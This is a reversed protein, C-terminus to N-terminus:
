FGGIVSDLDAIAQEYADKAQKLKALVDLSIKAKETNSLYAMDDEAKYIFYHNELTKTLDIQDIYSTVLSATLSIDKEERPLLVPRQSAEDYAWITDTDFNRIFTNTEFFRASLEDPWYIRTGADVTTDTPTLNDSIHSYDEQFFYVDEATYSSTNSDFSGIFNNFYTPQTMQKVKLDGILRKVHLKGGEKLHGAVVGVEKKANEITLAIYADEMETTARNRGILGIAAGESTVSGEAWIGKLSYVGERNGAEIGGTMLGAYKPANISADKIILNKITVPGRRMRGAVVGFYGGGGTTSAEQDVKCSHFTVNEMDAGDYINGALVGVDELGSIYANDFTINQITGKFTNFLGVKSVPLNIRLNKIAYGQGDILGTFTLSSNEKWEYDSMDIDHILRFHSSATDIDRGMQYVDEPTSLNIVTSISLSSVTASNGNTNTTLAYVDYEKTIDLLSTEFSFIPNDVLSLSGKTVASTFSDSALQDASPARSGKSLVAYHLTADSRVLHGSLTIRAKTPDRKDAKLYSAKFDYIRGKDSAEDFYVVQSVSEKETVDGLTFTYTYTTKTYGDEQSSVSTPESVSYDSGLTLTKSSDFRNKVIFSPNVGRPTEGSYAYLVPSYNSIEGIGKSRNPNTPNTEEILNTQSDLKLSSLYTAGIKSGSKARIRLRSVDGFLNSTVGGGTVYSDSAEATLDIYQGKEFDFVKLLGYGSKTRIVLRFKYWVGAKSTFTTADVLKGNKDYAVASSAIRFAQVISGSSTLFEFSVGNTEGMTLFYGEFAAGKPANTTNINIKRTFCIDSAQRSSPIKLAKSSPLNNVNSLTPESDGDIVESIRDEGSTMQWKYYNSIDLGTRYSSFDEEMAIPLTSEQKEKKKAVTLAFTRQSTGDKDEGIQAIATLTLSTDQDPRTVRGVVSTIKGNDNKNTEISLVDTNSSTWSIKANYLGTFPLMMDTLVHSLDISLNSDLADLAAKAKSRDEEQNAKVYSVPSFSSVSNEFPLASLSLVTLLLLGLKGKKM